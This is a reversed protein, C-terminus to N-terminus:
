IADAFPRQAMVRRYLRAYLGAIRDIGYSSVARSRAALGLDLARGEEALCWAIGAALSGPDFPTALFGTRGHDVIDRPGGSDFAVVAATPIKVNTNAHFLKMQGNTIVLEHM